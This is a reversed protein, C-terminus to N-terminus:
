PQPEQQTICHIGGGGEVIDLADIQMIDRGPFCDALVARAKEDNPDGFAPMVIAGNPLYFNVYSAALPSGNWGSRIKKPQPLEIVELSRGEADRAQELRRSAERVAAYDPHNRSAPMGLLVRGAGAFCAINDIHGDTEIDAFGSGLWIVKRAGLYLRLCTEMQEQTLGPNRNPNLLCQETTLVTGQGDSHVAGGECVFPADYVRIGIRQLVRGAFRADEAYPHYKEGWVNFKWHV